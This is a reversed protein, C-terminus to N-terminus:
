LIEERIFDNYLLNFHAIIIKDDAFDEESEIYCLSLNFYNKKVVELFKAVAPSCHIEMVSDETWCSAESRFVEAVRTDLASLTDASIKKMIPSATM